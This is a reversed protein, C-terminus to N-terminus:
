IFRRTLARINPKEQIRRGFRIPKAAISSQLQLSGGDIRISGKYGRSQSPTTPPSGRLPFLQPASVHAGCRAPIGTGARYVLAYSLIVYVIASSPHRPAVVPSSLVRNNTDRSEGTQRHCGNISLMITTGHCYM